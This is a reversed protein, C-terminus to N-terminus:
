AAEPASRALACGRRLGPHGSHGAPKARAVGHALCGSRAGPHEVLPRPGHDGRHGRLGPRAWPVRPLRRAAHQGLFGRCVANAPGRPLPRCALVAHPHLEIAHHRQRGFVACQPQWAAAAAGGRSALRRHRGRGTCGSPRDAASRLACGIRLLPAPGRRVTDFFGLFVQRFGVSRYVGGIRRATGRCQCEQPQARACGTCSHFRQLRTQRKAHQQGQKATPDLLCLLGAIV